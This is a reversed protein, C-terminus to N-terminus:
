LKIGGEDLRYIDEESLKVFSVEICMVESKAIFQHFYGAKIMVQKGTTLIHEAIKEKLQIQVLLEGSLM